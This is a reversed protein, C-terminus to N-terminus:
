EPDLKRPPSSVTGGPSWINISRISSRVSTGCANGDLRAPVFDPRMEDIGGLPRDHGDAAHGNRRRVRAVALAAPWAFAALLLTPPAPVAPGAPLITIEGPNLVPEGTIDTGSPDSFSTASSTVNVAFSGPTAGPLVDFFVRGLGVSQGAGLTFGSGPTDYLDAAIIEQLPSIASGIEPGFLSYGTFLYPDATGTTVRTFGIDTSGVSVGFAFGGVTAPADGTNTLTVDLFNGTSGAAATTAGASVIFGAHGATPGTLLVAFAALVTRLWPRTTHLM